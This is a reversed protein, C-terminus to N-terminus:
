VLKKIDLMATLERYAIADDEDKKAMAFEIQRNKEDYDFISTQLERQRKKMHVLHGNDGRMAPNKLIKKMKKVQSNLKNSLSNDSRPYFDTLNNRKKFHQM